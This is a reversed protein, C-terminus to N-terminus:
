VAMLYPKQAQVVMVALAVMIKVQVEIVVPEVPEM